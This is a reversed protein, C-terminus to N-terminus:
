YLNGDQPDITFLMTEKNQYSLNLEQLLFGPVVQDPDEYVQLLPLEPVQTDHGTDDVGEDQGAQLELHPSAGHCCAAVM